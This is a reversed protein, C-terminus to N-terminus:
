GSLAAIVTGSLYCPELGGLEWLGMSQVDDVDMLTDGRRKKYVNINPDDDAHRRQSRAM